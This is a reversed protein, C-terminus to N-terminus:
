RLPNAPLVVVVLESGISDVTVARLLFTERISLTRLVVVFGPSLFRTAVTVELSRVPSLLFKLGRVTDDFGTRLFLLWPLNVLVGTLTLDLVGAFDVEFRELIVLLLLVRVVFDTGLTLLFLDVVRVFGLAVDPTRLDLVVFVYEGGAELFLDPEDPLDLLPELTLGLVDPEDPEDPLDTRVVVVVFVEEPEM